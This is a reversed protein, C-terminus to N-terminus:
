FAHARRFLYNVAMPNLDAQEGAFAKALGFDLVKVKGEPTVKINGPKLDRHYLRYRHSRQLVCLLIAKYSDSLLPLKRPTKRPIWVM